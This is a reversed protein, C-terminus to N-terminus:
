LIRRKPQRDKQRTRQPPAETSEAFRLAVAIWARLEPGTSCAPPAVYVFGRLPKGTVDMPRVHPQGLIMPMEAARVRLMLDHGVIGCCMRGEHLFALGGFMKRETIDTRRQLVRRVRAALQEDYPM